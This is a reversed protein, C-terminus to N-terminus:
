DHDNLIEQQQEQIRCFSSLHCHQCSQSSKPRVAVYGDIFEQAINSLVNQWHQKLEEWSYDNTIKKQLSYNTKPFIAEDISAGHYTSADINVQAYLLANIPHFKKNQALASAYLLLQPNSPRAEDSVATKVSGSKYDILAFGDDIKDIRDIKFDLKLGAHQWQVKFEQAVVEFSSRLNEQELWKNILKVLRKKELSAYAGQMFYQHQKTLYEIGADCSNEIITDLKSKDLTSLLAQSKLQGWFQELVLHLMTGIDKSPIGYTFESLDNSSLRHVAFAKFPCESQDAILSIGGKIGKIDSIPINSDEKYIETNENSSIEEAIELSIPHLQLSNGKLLKHEIISETNVLSLIPSPNLEGSANARPYSFIVEEATNSIFESLTTIADDHILKPSSAPLKLKRQLSIPIFPNNYKNIPWQLDSLGLFWLHTYRLGAADNSNSIQIAAEQRNENYKFKQVVQKLLALAQSLSISQYLFNLQKFEALIQHWCYALFHDENNPEKHDQLDNLQEAPTWALRELQKNFLEAWANINQFQNQRRRLTECEMLAHALVPSHWDKEQNALLNRLDASRVSTQSKKRLYSELAARSDEEQALLLPSRLIHCLEVASIEENNFKLLEPIELLLPYEKHLNNSSVIFVPSHMDANPNIITQFINQFVSYHRLIDNSIIGIKADPNNKLINQSWSAAAKIESLEDAYSQKYVEPQLDRWQLIQLAAKQQLAEFLAQYLPPPKNFGLLIIKDPLNVNGSELHPLLNQLLESFSILNERSCHQQYQKAWQLFASCDDLHDFSEIKSQYTALSNLSIQWQTILRYAELLNPAANELNLLPSSIESDRIIKKWLTLEQYSDLITKAELSDEELFLQQSINKLWIDVPSIDPSPRVTSKNQQKLYAGFTEHVQVAIRHNPTLVIWGDEIADSLERIDTFTNFM